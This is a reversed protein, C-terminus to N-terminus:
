PRTRRQWMLACGPNYTKYVYELSSSNQMFGMLGGTVRTLTEFAQGTKVLVDPRELGKCAPCAHAMSNRIDSAPMTKM